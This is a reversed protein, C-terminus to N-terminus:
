WAGIELLTYYTAYYTYNRSTGSINNHYL